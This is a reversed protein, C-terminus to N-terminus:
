RISTDWKSKTPYCSFCEHTGQTMNHRNSRGDNNSFHDTQNRFDSLISDIKEKKKKKDEEDSDSIEIMNLTTCEGKSVADKLVNGFHYLLM